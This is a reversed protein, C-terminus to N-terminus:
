TGHTGAPATDPLILMVLRRLREREADTELMARFSRGHRIVGDWLAATLTYLLGDAVQSWSDGSVAELVPRVAELYSRTSRDIFNGVTENGSFAEQVILRILEADSVWLYFFDLLQESVLWADRFTWSGTRTETEIGKDVLLAELLGQKNGFYYYLLSNSLDARDAIARVSTRHFGRSAFLDRAARLLEERADRGDPVRRQALSESM